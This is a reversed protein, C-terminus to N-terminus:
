CQDDGSCATEALMLTKVSKVGSYQMVNFEYNNADLFVSFTMGLQKKCSMPLIDTAM